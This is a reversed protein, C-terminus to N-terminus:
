MRTSSQPDDLLRDALGVLRRIVQEAAVLPRMCVFEIKSYGASRGVPAPLTWV